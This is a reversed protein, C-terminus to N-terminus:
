KITIRKYENEKSKLVQIGGKLGGIFLSLVRADEEDLFIPYIGDGEKYALIIGEGKSLENLEEVTM